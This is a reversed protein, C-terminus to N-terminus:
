LRNEEYNIIGLEFDTAKPTSQNEKDKLWQMFEVANTIPLTNEIYEIIGFLIGKAPTCIVGDLEFVLNM